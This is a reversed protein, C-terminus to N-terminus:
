PRNIVVLDRAPVVANAGLAAALPAAQTAMADGLRKFILGRMTPILDVLRGCIDALQRRM